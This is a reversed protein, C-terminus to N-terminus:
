STGIPRQKRHLWTGNGESRTGLKKAANGTQLHRVKGKAKGM